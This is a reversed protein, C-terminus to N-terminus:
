TSSSPSSSPHVHSLRLAKRDSHLPSGDPDPLLIRKGNTGDIINPILVPPPTLPISSGPLPTILPLTAKSLMEASPLKVMACTSGNNNANIPGLGGIVGGSGGGGGSGGSSSRRDHLISSLSLLSLSGMDGQSHSSLGEAHLPGVEAGEGLNADMMRLPIASASRAAFRMGPTTTQVPGPTATPPPPMWHWRYNIPRRTVGTESGMHGVDGSSAPGSSRGGPRGPVVLASPLSNSGRASVGGGGHPLSSLMEQISPLRLPGSTPPPVSPSRTAPASMSGGAAAYQRQVQCNWHNKIANDTRGPMHKAIEAWRNGLRAHLRAM